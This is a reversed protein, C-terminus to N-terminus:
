HDRVPALYRLRCVLKTFNQANLFSAYYALLRGRTGRLPSVGLTKPRMEIWLLRRIALITQDCLEESRAHSLEFQM